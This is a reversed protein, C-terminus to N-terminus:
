VIKMEATICHIQPKTVFVDILAPTKICFFERGNEMWTRCPTNKFTFHTNFFLKMTLFPGVDKEGEPARRWVSFEAVVHVAVQRALPANCLDRERMCMGM